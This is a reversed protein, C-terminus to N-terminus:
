QELHNIRVHIDMGPREVIIGKDKILQSPENAIGVKQQVM